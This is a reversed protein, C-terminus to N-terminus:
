GRPPLSTVPVRVFLIGALLAVINGLIFGLSSSYLTAAVHRPYENADAILRLLIETPAPLAGHAVLKLRGLFEWVALVIAIDLLARHKM